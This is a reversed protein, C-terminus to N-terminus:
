LLKLEKMFTPKTFNDAHKLCFYQKLKEVEFNWM